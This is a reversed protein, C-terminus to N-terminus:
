QRAPASPLRLKYSTTPLTTPVAGPQAPQGMVPATTVPEGEPTLGQQRLASRELVTSRAQRFANVDMPTMGASSVGFLYLQQHAHGQSDYHMPALARVHMSSRMARATVENAPLRKYIGMNVAFNVFDYGLSTWMDNGQGVLAKPPNSTNWAAPFVALAYKGANPLQRGALGQEWATTGMLVLRDEGNYAFSTIVMDMQKWPAPVFLAEFPTNPTPVAMSGAGQTGQMPKVLTAAAETWGTTSAPPYSARHLTANRKALTQAMLTTMRQGYADNPYFAGFTAVGISDAFGILADIQDQPSAFFRWARVGEDGQELNNLFGFFARKELAGANKASRYADNRMPGGVVACSEPLANLKTLWDPLDTDLYEIRVNIRDAALEKSALQAGHRVRASMPAKSSLALVVCPGELRESSPKAPTQQDKPLFPMQCATLSLVAVLAGCLKGIASFSRIDPM